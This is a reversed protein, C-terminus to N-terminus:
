VPSSREVESGILDPFVYKQWKQQFTTKGATFGYRTDARKVSRHQAM